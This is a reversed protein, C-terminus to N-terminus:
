KAVHCGICRVPKALTGTELWEKAEGRHTTTPASAILKEFYFRAKDKDGLRDHVSALGILLEGRPHDGLKDLYSEQAKYTLEYDERVRELLPKAVDPPMFPTAAQLTAARPIRVGLNNPELAVAADMEAIGKEFLPMANQFDQKQFLAGALSLYGSGRWVKAEAHKPNEALIEDCAKMARDFAEKNGSLGAFFDQRVTHDFRDAAALFTAAALALLLTTRM